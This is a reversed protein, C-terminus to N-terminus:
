IKNEMDALRAKLESVELVLADVISSTENLDRTLDSYPFLIGDPNAMVITNDFRGGLRKIRIQGNAVSIKDTAVWGNNLAYLFDGDYGAEVNPGNYSGAPGTAGKAGTPGKSGTAGKSGPSGNSGNTGSNGKAGDEGDRGDTGNTGPTGKSGQVGKAGNSGNAGNSGPDGKPGQAGGFKGIDVWSGEDWVWAHDTDIAVYVDGQEASINWLQSATSVTGNLVLNQGSPGQPGIPGTDGDKGNAGDAGDSALNQDVVLDVYSKNAAHPGTTPWGVGFPDEVGNLSDARETGLKKFSGVLNNQLENFDNSLITGGRRFSKYQDFLNAM